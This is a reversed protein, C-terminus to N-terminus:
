GIDPQSNATTNTVIAGIEINCPLAAVLMLQEGSVVSGIVTRWVEGNACAIMVKDGMLFRETTDVSIIQTGAPAAATVTTKLPGVFRNVDPLRPSPVGRREPRVKVFDQPHRREYVREDVIQGTWEKRTKSAPVKRGTRDCIRWFDGRRLTFDNQM